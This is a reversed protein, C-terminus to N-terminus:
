FIWKRILFNIFISLDSQFLLNLNEIVQFRSYCVSMIDPLCMQKLLTVNPMSVKIVSNKNKANCVICTSLHYIFSTIVITSKDIFVSSFHNSTRAHNANKTFIMTKLFCIIIISTFGLPFQINRAKALYTSESCRVEGTKTLLMQTFTAIFNHLNYNLYLAWQSHGNKKYLRIIAFFFFVDCIFMHQETKDQM